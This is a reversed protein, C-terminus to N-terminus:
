RAGVMCRVVRVDRGRWASGTVLYRWDLICRFGKCLFTGETHHQLPQDASLEQKISCPGDSPGPLELAPALTAHNPLPSHAHWTTGSVLVSCQGCRRLVNIFVENALIDLKKQDEGQVNASGALGLVGALGAQVSPTACVGETAMSWSLGWTASATTTASAKRVASEVFKCAIQIAQLLISLNGRAQPAQLGPSCILKSRQSIWVVCKSPVRIAATSAKIQKEFLIWQTLSVPDTRGIDHSHTAM